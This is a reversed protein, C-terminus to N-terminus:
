AAETLYTLSKKRRIEDESMGAILTGWHRPPTRPEGTFEFGEEDLRLSSGELGGYGLEKRTDIMKQVAALARADFLGLRAELKQIRDKQGYCQYQTEANLYHVYFTRRLDGTRNGASGHPASICHFSVDGPEMEVPVAGLEDFLAGESYNEVEVHGVLHHGPIVWVCGNEITSHDLYIDADINPVAHTESWEADGYPPDQHWHIPLDGEPIKCVFSDVVPMFPHGVLQGFYTLLSPNVTVAQFMPDRDWMRESRFYTPNGDANGRYRHDTQATDAIGEEVVRDAAKRLAALEEGQIVGKAVIIGDRHFQDIQAQTFM